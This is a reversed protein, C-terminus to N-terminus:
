DAPPSESKVPGSTVVSLPTPEPGAVSAAAPSSSSNIGDRAATALAETLARMAGERFEPTMGDLAALATQITEAQTKATRRKTWNSRLASWESPPFFDAGEAVLAARAQDIAAGRILRAFSRPDLNRAHIEDRCLVALVRGVAGSDAEIKAWGGAAIDALDVGTEKQVDALAFADLLVRWEQGSSDRFVSM